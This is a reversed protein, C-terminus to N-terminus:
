AVAAVFGEADVGCGALYALVEARAAHYREAEDDREAAPRTRLETWSTTLMNALTIFEPSPPTM